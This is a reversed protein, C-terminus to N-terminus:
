EDEKPQWPRSPVSELPSAGSVSGADSATFTVPGHRNNAEDSEDVAGHPQPHGWSDVYAWITHEGAAYADPWRSYTAEYFAGDITLTLREGSGLDDVFWAAGYRSLDPWARNGEPVADPDLYLDVWFDAADGDGANSVEVTLADPDSPDVTVAEVMLDARGDYSRMLLPLYVRDWKAVVNLWFDDGVRGQVVRGSYDDWFEGTTHHIALMRDAASEAQATLSLPTEGGGEGEWEGEQPEVRFIIEFQRWAGPALDGLNWTVRDEGLAAWPPTSGTVTVGDPLTLTVTVGRAVADGANYATVDMVIESPGYDPIFCSGGVSAVERSAELSSAGWGGNCYYDVWIAAGHAEVTLGEGQEQWSLGFTDTYHITPGDNVVNPGHQARVLTAKSVLYWPQHASPLDRMAAPLEFTAVGDASTFPVTPALSAFLAGATDSLPHGADADMAQRLADVTATDTVLAAADLRVNAPVADTLVLDHAPGSVFTPTADEPRQLAIRAPPAEYGAPLHDASVEVPVELVQGWLEDPVDEVALDFYWVSRWADPVTERNLFSLEPWIPEPATEPDTYLPTATLGAPPALDVSLNTLTLGTNNDLAVRVRTHDDPDDPELTSHFLTKKERGGVYTSWVLDGYGWSKLYPDYFRDFARPDHEDWVQTLFIVTDSYISVATPGGRKAVAGDSSWGEAAHVHADYVEYRNPGAIPQRYVLRGGDHLKFLGERNFPYNEITASVIFSAWSGPPIEQQFFLHDYATQESVTIMDTSGPGAERWSDYWTAGQPGIKIGLGKFIPLEILNEGSPITFDDGANASYTKGLLRLQAEDLRTPIEKVQKDPEGDGDTDIWLGFTVAL